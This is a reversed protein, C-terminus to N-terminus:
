RPLLHGAVAPGQPLKVRPPRLSRPLGGPNEGGGASRRRQGSRPTSPEPQSAGGCAPLIGTGPQPAPQADQEVGGCMPTDRQPQEAGTLMSTGPASCRQPGPRLNDFRPPATPLGLLGRIGAAQGTAAPGAAPAPTNEAPPNPHGADLMLADESRDQRDRFPNFVPSSLDATENDIYIHGLDIALGEDEQGQLHDTTEDEVDPGLPLNNQSYHPERPALPSYRCRVPAPEPRSCFVLRKPVPRAAGHGTQAGVPLGKAATHFERRPFAAPQGAAPGKTATQDRTPLGKAATQSERRPFAAPQGATPGEAATQFERRPLAAPQRATPGRTVTQLPNPTGAAPTAPVDEAAPTEAAPARAAARLAENRANRAEERRLYETVRREAEAVAAPTAPVDEIAPTEAAPARAAARLAENRANRAEERRLYEAVLREAEAEAAERERQRATPDNEIAEEMQQNAPPEEAVDAAQEEALGAELDNELAEMIERDPDPVHHALEEGADEEEEPEGEPMNAVQEEEDPQEDWQQEGGPVDGAPRAEGAGADPRRRRRGYPYPNMRNEDPITYEAVANLTDNFQVQRRRGNTPDETGQGQNEQNGTEQVDDEHGENEQGEADQVDDEHGEDEHNDQPM